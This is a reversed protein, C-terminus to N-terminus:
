WVILTSCKSFMAKEHETAGTNAIMVIQPVNINHTMIGDGGIKHVDGTIWDLGCDVLGLSMVVGKLQDLWAGQEM